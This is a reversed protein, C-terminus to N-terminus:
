GDYRPRGDVQAPRLARREADRPRALPTVLYRTYLQYLALLGAVAVDASFVAGTEGDALRWLMVGLAYVAALLVGVSAPEEKVLRKM